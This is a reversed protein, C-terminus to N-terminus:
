TNEVLSWHLESHGRAPTPPPQLHEDASEKLKLSNVQGYGKSPMAQSMAEKRLSLSMMQECCV